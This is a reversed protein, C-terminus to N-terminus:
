EDLEELLPSATKTVCNSPTSACLQEEGLTM